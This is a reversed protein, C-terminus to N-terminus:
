NIRESKARAQAVQQAVKTQPETMGLREIMAAGPIIIEGYGM